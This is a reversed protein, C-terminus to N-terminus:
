APSMSVHGILFTPVYKSSMPTSDTAATLSTGISRLCTASWRRVHLILVTFFCEDIAVKRYSDTFFRCFKKSGFTPKYEVHHRIESIDSQGVFVFSPLHRRHVVSAIKFHLAFPDILFRQTEREVVVCKSSKRTRISM